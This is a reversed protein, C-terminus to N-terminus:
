VSSVEFGEQELLAVLVGKGPVVEHERTIYLCGCSPSREKTIAKRAGVLHALKLAERAGLIFSRTVDTGDSMVVKSKGKLVKEGGGDQIESPERPTSLGGLQEPCVPLAKGDAVLLAVKQDMSDTGDYRCRVGALCASVIYEM